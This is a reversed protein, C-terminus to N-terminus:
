GCLSNLTTQVQDPYQSSLDGGDLIPDSYEYRAGSPDEGLCEFRDSTRESQLHALNHVFEHRVVPAIRSNSQRSPTCQRFLQDRILVHVTIALESLADVGLEAEAGKTQGAIRDGAGTGLRFLRGEAPRPVPVHFESQRAFSRAHERLQSAPDM